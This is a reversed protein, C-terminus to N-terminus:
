ILKKYVGSFPEVQINLSVKKIEDVISTKYLEMYATNIKKVDVADLDNIFQWFPVSWTSEANFESHLIKAITNYDIAKAKAYVERVALLAQLSVIFVITYLAGHILGGNYYKREETIM